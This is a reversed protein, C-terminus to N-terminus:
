EETFGYQKLTELNKKCGWALRYNQTKKGSVIDNMVKWQWDKLIHRRKDWDLMKQLLEIISSLYFFLRM